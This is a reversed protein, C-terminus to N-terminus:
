FQHGSGGDVINDSLSGVKVDVGDKDIIGLRTLPSFFRMVFGSLGENRPVVPAFM